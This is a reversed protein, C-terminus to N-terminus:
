AIEDGDGLLPVEVSRSLAQMDALRRDRLANLLHLASKPNLEKCTRAMLDSQGFRSVQNECFHLGRQRLNISDPLHRASESL